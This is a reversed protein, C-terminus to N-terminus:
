TGTVHHSSGTTRNDSDEGLPPVIRSLISSESAPDARADRAPESLGAAFRALADAWEARESALAQKLAPLADKTRTRDAMTRQVVDYLRQELGSVEDTVQALVRQATAEVAVRLHQRMRGRFKDIAEPLQRALRFRWVRHRAKAPLLPALAVWSLEPFFSQRDLDDLRVAVAVPELHLTDLVPWRAELLEQYTEQVGALLRNGQLTLDHLEATWWTQWRETERCLTENASRAVASVLTADWAHPPTFGSVPSLERILVPVAEEAWGKLRAEATALERQLRRQFLVGLDDRMRRLEERRQNMRLIGEELDELSTELAAQRVALTEALPRVLREVKSRLSAEWVLHREASFFARLQQELESWGSDGGNTRAPDRASQLAWKASVSLIDTPGLEEEVIRANFALARTWDSADFLDRKNQVVFVRPLEQALYRLFKREDETMPPDAGIVFLAADVSRLTEHAIASNAEITSGIGPLDILSLNPVFLPDPITVVIRSVGRRNGPNGLETAYDALRADPIPEQRGDVFDVVICFATGTTVVTPVSTLPLVDTPLLPRGLFANIVSSKGRKFQGAVALRFQREDAREALTTLEAATRADNQQAALHSLRHIAESLASRHSVEVFCRRSYVAIDRAMCWSSDTGVVNSALEMARHSMRMIGIRRACTEEPCETWMKLGTPVARQM